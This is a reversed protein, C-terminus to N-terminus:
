RSSSAENVQHMNPGIREDDFKDPDHYYPLRRNPQGQIKGSAIARKVEARFEILQRKSLGWLVPALKGLKFLYRAGAM